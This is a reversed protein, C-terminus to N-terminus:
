EPHFSGSVVNLEYHRRVYDSPDKRLGDFSILCLITIDATHHEIIIIVIIVHQTTDDQGHFSFLGEKKADNDPIYNANRQSTVFPWQYRACAARM